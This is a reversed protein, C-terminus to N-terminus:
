NAKVQSKDTSNVTYNNGQNKLKKGKQDKTDLKVKNQM